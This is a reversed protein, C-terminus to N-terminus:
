RVLEAIAGCVFAAGIFLWGWRSWKRLERAREPGTDLIVGEEDTELILRFAARDNAIAGAVGLVLAALAWWKSADM